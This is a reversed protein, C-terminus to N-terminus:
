NHQTHTHLLVTKIHKKSLGLTKWFIHKQQYYNTLQIIHKDCLIIKPDIYWTYKYAKNSTDEM